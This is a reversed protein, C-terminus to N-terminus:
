DQHSDEDGVDGLDVERFVRAKQSGLSSYSGFIVSYHDVPWDLGPDM